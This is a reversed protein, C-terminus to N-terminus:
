GGIPFNSIISFDGEEATIEEGIEATKRHDNARLHIEIAAARSM